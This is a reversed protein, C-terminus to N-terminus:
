ASWRLTPGMADALAGLQLSLDVSAAWKFGRLQTMTTSETAAATAAATAIDSCVAVMEPM